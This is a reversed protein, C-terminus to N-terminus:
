AIGNATDSNVVQGGNKILGNSYTGLRLFDLYQREIFVHTYWRGKFESRKIKYTYDKNSKKSRLTFNGGDNNKETKLVIELSSSPVPHLELSTACM